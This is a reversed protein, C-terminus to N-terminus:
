RSVHRATFTLADTAQSSDVSLLIWTSGTEVSAVLGGTPSPGLKTTFPTHDVVAPHPMNQDYFDKLKASSPQRQQSVVMQVGDTSKATYVVVGDDFLSHVLDATFDSPLQIHYLPFDAKSSVSQPVSNATPPSPHQMVFFILGGVLVIGVGLGWFRYRYM